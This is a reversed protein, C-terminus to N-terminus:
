LPKVSDMSFPQGAQPIAVQKLNHKRVQRLVQIPIIPHKHVERHMARHMIQKLRTSPGSKVLSRTKTRVIQLSTGKRAVLTACEKSNPLHYLFIKNEKTTKKMQQARTVQTKKNKEMKALNLSLM